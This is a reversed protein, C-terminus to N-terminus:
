LYMFCSHIDNSMSSLHKEDYENLLSFDDMVIAVSGVVISHGISTWYIHTCWLDLILSQQKNGTSQEYPKEGVVPVQGQMLEQLM